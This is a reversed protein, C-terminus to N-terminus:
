LTVAVNPLMFLKQTLKPALHISSSSTLLLPIPIFVQLAENLISSLLEAVPPWLLQRLLPQILKALVVPGDIAIRAKSQHKTAKHFTLETM